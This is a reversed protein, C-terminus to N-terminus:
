EAPISALLKKAWKNKPEVELLKRLYTRGADFEKAETTLQGLSGWLRINQAQSNSGESLLGAEYCDRAPDKMGVDNFKDGSELCKAAPDPKFLCFDKDQGKAVRLYDSKTVGPYSKHYTAFAEEYFFVNSEVSDQYVQDRHLSDLDLSVTNAPAPKKAACGALLAAPLLMAGLAAVVGHAAYLPPRNM